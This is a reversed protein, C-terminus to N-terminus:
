RSDINHPKKWNPYQITVARDGINIQQAQQLPPYVKDQLIASSIILDKVSAEPLRKSAEILSKRAIEINKTDLVAKAKKKYEAFLTDSALFGYLTREPVKLKKAIKNVDLGDALLKYSKVVIETKIKKSYNRKLSNRRVKLDKEEDDM